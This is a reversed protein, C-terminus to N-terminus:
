SPTHRPESRWRSKSRSRGRKGTEGPFFGLRPDAAIARTKRSLAPNFQGTRGSHTPPANRAARPKNPNEIPIKQRARSQNEQPIPNTQSAPCRCTQATRPYARTASSESRGNAHDRRPCFLRGSSCIREIIPEDAKLSVNNTGDIFKRQGIKRSDHPLFKKRKGKFFRNQFFIADPM